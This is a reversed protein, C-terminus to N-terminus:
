VGHHAPKDQAAAQGKQFPMWEAYTGHHGSANPKTWDPAPVGDQQLYVSTLAFPTGNADWGAVNIMTDSHVYVIHACEPQKMDFSTSRRVWIVRGVTPKIM